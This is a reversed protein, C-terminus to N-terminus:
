DREFLTFDPNRHLIKVKQDKLLNLDTNEILFLGKKNLAKKFENIDYYYNVKKQSYYVACPNGGFQWTQPIQETPPLLEKAQREAHWVLYNLQRQPYKRAEMAIQYRPPIDWNKQL